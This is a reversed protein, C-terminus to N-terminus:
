ISSRCSCSRGCRSWRLPLPAAWPKAGLLEFKPESKRATRQYLDRM